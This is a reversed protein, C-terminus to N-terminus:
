LNSIKNQTEQNWTTIIQSLIPARKQIKEINNIDTQYHPDWVQCAYDALPRVLTTYCRERVQRPCSAPINRRLFAM